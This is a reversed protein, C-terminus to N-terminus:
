RPEKQARKLAVYLPNPQNLDALIQAKVRQQSDRAPACEAAFWHAMYNTGEWGCECRSPAEDPIASRGAELLLRDEENAAARGARLIADVASKSFANLIQEAEDSSEETGVGQRPPLAAKGLGVPVQSM